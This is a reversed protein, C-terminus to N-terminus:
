RALVARGRGTRGAPRYRQSVPSASARSRHELLVGGDISGAALSRISRMLARTSCRSPRAAVMTARRGRRTARSSRCARRWSPGCSRMTSCASSTRPDIRARRAGGANVELAVFPVDAYRRSVRHEAAALRALLRTPRPTSTGASHPSPSRIRSGPKRRTPDRAHAAAGARPRPPSAPAASRRSHPAGLALIFLTFSCVTARSGTM